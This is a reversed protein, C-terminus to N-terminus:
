WIRRKFVWAAIFGWIFANMVWFLSIVPKTLFDNWFQQSNKDDIIKQEATINSQMAEDATIKAREDSPLKALYDLHDKEKTASIFGNGLTSLTLILPMLLLILLWGLEKFWGERRIPM